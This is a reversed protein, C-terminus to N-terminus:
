FRDLLREIYDREIQRRQQEGLRRQLENRIRRSAQPDGQEPVRVSMGFDPGSSPLPRGLPDTRGNPGTAGRRNQGPRTAMGDALSRAMSRAGQRMQDVAEGQRGVAQGNEGERLRQEARSMAEGARGLAGQGNLGNERLQGLIDALAKELAQQREALTMEGQGNQGSQQGNNQPQGDRPPQGGNEGRFTDDMLSQQKGIMEGLQNLLDSMMSQEPTM